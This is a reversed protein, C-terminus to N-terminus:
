KLILHVYQHIILNTDTDATLILKDYDGILAADSTLEGRERCVM